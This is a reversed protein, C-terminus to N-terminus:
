TYIHKEQKDKIDKKQKNSIKKKTTKNKNREIM